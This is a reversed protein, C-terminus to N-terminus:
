HFCLLLVVLAGCGTYQSHHEKKNGLVFRSFLALDAFHTVVRFM